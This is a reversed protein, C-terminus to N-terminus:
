ISKSIFSDECGFDKLADRIVLIYVKIAISCIFFNPKITFIDLLLPISLEFGFEKAGKPNKM